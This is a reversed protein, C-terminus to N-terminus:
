SNIIQLDTHLLLRCFSDFPIAAFASCRRICKHHMRPFSRNGWRPHIAALAWVPHIPGMPGGLFISLSKENKPNKNTWPFFPRLHGWIPGPPNKGVLGSRASMKPLVSKFKSINKSKSSGLNRSRWTGLDGFEWCTGLNGSKWGSGAGGGSSNESGM